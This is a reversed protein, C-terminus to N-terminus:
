QSRVYVVPKVEIFLPTPAGSWAIAESPEAACALCAASVAAVSLYACNM